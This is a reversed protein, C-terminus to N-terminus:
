RAIMVIPVWTGAADSGQGAIWGADNLANLNRPAIPSPETVDSLALVSDGQWIVLGSGTQQGGHRRDLVLAYGPVQPPSANNVDHAYQNLTYKKRNDVLSPLTQPELTADVHFAEPYNGAVQFSGVIDGAENVSIATSWALGSTDIVPWQTVVSLNTGDWDLLWAVAQGGDGSSGDAGVVLNSDNISRAIGSGLLVPGVVTGNSDVHWAAASTGVSGVVIGHNNVDQAGAGASLEIPDAVASPWLVASRIDDYYVGGCIAGSDNIAYAFGRTASSDGLSLQEAFVSVPEGATVQWYLPVGDGGGVVEGTENIDVASAEFAELQVVEYTLSTNGGGGDGGGPRDPKKAFASPLCLCIATMVAVYGSSRASNM